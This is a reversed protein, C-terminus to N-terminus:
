YNFVPEIDTPIDRFRKLLESLGEPLKGGWTDVFVRTYDYSKANYVRVFAEGLDRYAKALKWPKFMRISGDELTLVDESILWNYQIRAGVAHAENPRFRMQRLLDALHIIASVLASGEPILGRHELFFLFTIGFVDAKAEELNNAIEGFCGEEGTFYLGLGHMLEHAVIGLMYLESNYRVGQSFVPIRELIRKTLHEFKAQIVNRIFVNKTGFRNRIDPDNPLCYAMPVYAFRAFGGTLIEDIVLM